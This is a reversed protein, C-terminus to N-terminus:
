HQASNICLWPWGEKQEAMSPLPCPTFPLSPPAVALVSSGMQGFPYELGHSTMNLIYLPLFFCSPLPMQLAPMQRGLYSNHTIPSQDGPIASYLRHILEKDAKSAHM